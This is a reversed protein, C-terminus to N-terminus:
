SADYWAVSEDINRVPLRVQVVTHVLTKSTTNMQFEGELSIICHRGYSRRQILYDERRIMNKVRKKDPNENRFVFGLSEILFGERIKTGGAASCRESLSVAATL